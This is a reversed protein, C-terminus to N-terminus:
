QEVYITEATRVVEDRFYRSLDEATRLDVKRGGFLQSLEEEMRAIDLLTPLHMPDFKVLVDIDSDDRFNGRLVSGFLALNKIKNEQCFKRLRARSISVHDHIKLM